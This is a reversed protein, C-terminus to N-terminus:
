GDDRNREAYDEIVTQRPRAIGLAGDPVDGTIASGAGTVAGEGVTVPAVLSTHVGTRARAGVVTRHKNRGDYNATITSAGLNAGAGVDADGVYSLHPVKAGEGLRTNKLEVFTGAKANPGVDAGPRLYAFPGVTAGDGVKALVLRSMTVEAGNGVEADELVSHPGIVSGSGIITTGRLVSGLLITSDEGIEVSADIAVSGPAEITVGNRMHRDCIRRQALEQVRALDARDNVGITLAADHVEVALVTEGRDALAAVADPLYREGQANASGVGALLEKLGAVRFVVVGTNVEDILLEEPSADEVNKTEVVRVFTGSADRVIRGYGSPDELRMTAITAAAGNESHAQLVASITAADILPVDGALVVVAQSDALHDVAAALAGATGDPEPQVAHIVGEPLHEELARDPSGVVVTVSAGAARAASISWAVMPVGCVPHLVKALPSRMRTGRGAALIAVAVGDMFASRIRGAIRDSV